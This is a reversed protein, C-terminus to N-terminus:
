WVIRLRTVLSGTVTFTDARGDPAGAEKVPPTPDNLIVAPKTESLTEAWSAVERLTSIDPVPLILITSAGLICNGASKSAYSIRLVSFIEVPADPAEPVSVNSYGNM